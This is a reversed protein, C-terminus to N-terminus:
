LDRFDRSRRAKGCEVHEHESIDDGTLHQLARYVSACSHATNVWLLRVSERLGRGRTLGGKSKIAKMMVQEIVLDTSLGSWNRDTRSIVHFGDHCFKDYLWPHKLPLDLM